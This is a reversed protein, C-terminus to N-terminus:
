TFVLLVISSFKNGLLRTSFEKKWRHRQYNKHNFHILLYIKMEHNVIFISWTSVLMFLNISTFIFVKNCTVSSQNSFRVLKWYSNQFNNVKSYPTNLTITKFYIDISIPYIPFIESSISYFRKKKRYKVKAGIYKQINIDNMFNDSIKLFLLLMNGNFLKNIYVKTFFEIKISMYIHILYQLHSLYERVGSNKIM